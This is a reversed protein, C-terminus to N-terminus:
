HCSIATPPLYVARWQYNTKVVSFQHWDETLRQYFIGASWCYRMSKIRFMPHGEITDEVREIQILNFPNRIENALEDFESDSISRIGSARSNADKWWSEFINESLIVIRNDIREFSEDYFGRLELAEDIADLIQSGETAPILTDSVRGFGKIAFVCVVLAISLIILQSRM